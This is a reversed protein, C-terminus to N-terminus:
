SLMFSMAGAYVGADYNLAEVTVTNEGSPTTTSVIFDRVLTTSSGFAFSTYDKDNDVNINFPPASPLVVKNDASGRTVTIANSVSGDTARLLIQKAGGSWNLDHDVTLTNGSVGIVLGGDGWKPVNHSVGIRDGLQLLLGELETDFTIRKRQLMGRNWVLQAFQAAHTASNIGPVSYQDPRLATTPYKAYAPKFTTPDLYEIEVGDSVGEDDWSYNVNMSGEVINADTFLMSRVTKIGDAAISMVPGVPLPEAGFPITIARLAEWITIRERFVHNFQYAAWKTRLTNLTTLDLESRPRAAGYVTNTYADAFADIAIATQNEVGGVPPPLRRIARCTIRVSADTGLGQSAKIRVAVLTVNGYVTATPFGAYVRLGTWVFRDTGNKANPASTNRVIKVAWRAAKPALIRYTRRLPSAIITRNRASVSTSTTSTGYPGTVSASASTSAYIVTSYETGTRNDNADLEQYYVTFNCSRGILDGANSGTDVDFLGGPWVIDVDIDQAILGQKCAAFYGASDGADIFEQNGVEPSTVVNEYFNGGLAAGIVGPSSRHESPKFARWTVVGPDPTQSATDGLYINAIDINGQGVCLLLNLYQVGTYYDDYNQQNWEYFTYPQAVYDPSTLVTGYVVPIPEGLRAANQDTSVDYLSVPDGKMGSARETPRFFFYNIAFSAAALVASIALQTLIAGLTITGPEGPMLAIVAVDDDTVKYDLGDLDQEKGNVYFRIPMGFGRPHNAQLWDIVPTGAALPYIERTHPALPNKLLVLSAM